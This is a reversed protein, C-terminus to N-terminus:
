RGDGNPNSYFKRIANVAMPDFAATAPETGLYIRIGMSDAKQLRAKIEEPPFFLFSATKYSVPETKNELTWRINGIPTPKDNVLIIMKDDIQPDDKFLQVEMRIEDQMMKGDKFTRVYELHMKRIGKSFDAIPNGPGDIKHETALSYKDVKTYKDHDVRVVNLQEACSLVGCLPPIMLYFYLNKM